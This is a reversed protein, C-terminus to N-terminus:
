PARCVCGDTWNYAHMGPAGCSAACARMRDAEDTRTPGCMCCSCIIFLVLIAFAMSMGQDLYDVKKEPETKEGEDSM